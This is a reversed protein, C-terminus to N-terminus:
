ANLDEMMQDVDDYTKGLLPDAKMAVVERIAEKTEENPEEVAVDFPLGRRNIAMRLFVNIATSMDLGLESFLQQAQAKVEKNVRITLSSDANVAM